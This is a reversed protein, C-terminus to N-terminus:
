FEANREDAEILYRFKTFEEELKFLQPVKKQKLQMSSTSQEMASMRQDYVCKKQSTEKRGNEYKEFLM